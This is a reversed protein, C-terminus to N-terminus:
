WKRPEVPDWRDRYECIDNGTDEDSWEEWEREEFSLEELGQVSSQIHQEGLYLDYRALTQLVLRAERLSDVEQYFPEGPINPIHWVRLRM